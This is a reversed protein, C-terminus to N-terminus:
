VCVISPTCCKLLVDKSFFTNRGANCSVLWLLIIFISGWYLILTSYMFFQEPLCLIIVPYLIIINMKQCLFFNKNLLLPLVYVFFFQFLNLSSKIRQIHIILLKNAKYLFHFLYFLRKTM